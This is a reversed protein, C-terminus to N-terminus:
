HFRRPSMTYALGSTRSCTGWATDQLIVKKMVAPGLQVERAIWNGWLKQQHCAARSEGREHSLIIVKGMSFIAVRGLYGSKEVCRDSYNGQSSIKKTLLTLVHDKEGKKRELFKYRICTFLWFCSLVISEVHASCNGIFSVHQNLIHCPLCFHESLVIFLCDFDNICNSFWSSVVQVYIVRLLFVFSINKFHQGPAM